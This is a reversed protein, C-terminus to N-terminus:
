TMEEKPPEPLPQPETRRIWVHILDSILSWEAFTLDSPLKLHASVKQPVPIEFTAWQDNM